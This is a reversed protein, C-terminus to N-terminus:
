AAAGSDAGVGADALFAAGAGSPLAERTDAFGHDSSLAMSSAGAAGPGGDATVSAVAAVSAVITNSMGSASAPQDCDPSGRGLRFHGAAAIAGRRPWAGRLVPCGAQASGRAHSITTDLVPVFDAPRFNRPPPPFRDLTAITVDSPRATSGGPCGLRSRFTGAYAYSGRCRIHTNVGM